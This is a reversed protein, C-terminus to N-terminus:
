RDGVTAPWPVGEMYIWATGHFQTHGVTTTWSFVGRKTPTFFPKRREPRRQGVEQVGSGSRRLPILEWMGLSLQTDLIFDWRQPFSPHRWEINGRMRDGWCGGVLFELVDRASAFCLLHFCCSGSSDRFLCHLVAAGEDGLFLGFLSSCGPFRLFGFSTNNFCAIGPQGIITIYVHGSLSFSYVYLPRETVCLESHWTSGHHWFVTKPSEPYQM